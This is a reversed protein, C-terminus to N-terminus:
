QPRLIRRVSEDLIRARICVFHRHRCVFTRHCRQSYQFSEAYMQFSPLSISYIFFRTRGQSEALGTRLAQLPARFFRTASIFRNWGSQMVSHGLNEINRGFISFRHLYQLVCLPLKVSGVMYAGKPAYKEDWRLVSMKNKGKNLVKNLM